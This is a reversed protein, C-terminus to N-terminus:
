FPGKFGLDPVDHPIRDSDPIELRLDAEGMLTLGKQVIQRLGPYYNCSLAPSTPLPYEPLTIRIPPSRLSSLCQEAALAVIEGAFGCTKWGTDLVMLRGTKKLSAVICAADLPKLSRIDIVEVSIGGSDLVAAARLAEYTMHSVSAITIDKGPRKIEAIGLPVTYYDEPVPGTLNHLWRHELFIVPNDDEISALLLGKADHPSFPMVVKLGPVHAFFSQLSQSHQPGQGWGRGIIMRIVLPVKSKGDFMYHWKAAQNIIQELALLAFDVRQHTMIPRLGNLAAGIAIGTMGNESAPMDMVRENGFQEKLGLTTGFIGKPDPVGLGMIITGEDRTMAQETAERIAEAFTLTRIRSTKLPVEPM